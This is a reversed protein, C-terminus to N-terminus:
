HTRKRRRRLDEEVEHEIERALEDDVDDEMITNSLQETTPRTGIFRSGALSGSGFTAGEWRCHDFTVDMLHAKCLKAGRFDCRVFSEAAYGQANVLNADRFCCDEYHGALNVSKLSARTFDCRKVDWGMASWITAGVFLCDFIRIKKGPGGHRMDCYSLDFHDLDIMIVDDFIFGRLDVYSQGDYEVIPLDQPMQRGGIANNIRRRDSQSWRKILKNKTEM